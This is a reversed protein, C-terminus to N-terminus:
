VNLVGDMEGRPENKGPPYTVVMILQLKLVEVIRCVISSEPEISHRRPGSYGIEQCRRHAEIEVIALTKSNRCDILQKRLARTKLCVKAELGGLGVVVLHAALM